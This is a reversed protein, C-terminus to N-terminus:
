IHTALFKLKEEEHVPPLGHGYEAYIRIDKESGLHNYLAFVSSPPCVSDELGVGLLTPCSVRSALNMCDFYSLTGYITEETEHLPDHVKFYHYIETYPGESSLQVSREFHTLYPIETLALLINRQLAAAALALAGGQSSGEVFVTSKGSLERVVDVSRFCDMYVNSYYYQDPNKIGLTMWGSSGGNEYLHHDPSAPNQGRVEVLLVPIGQMVYKFAYHPQLTNWNYGHFIVAGPTEQKVVLPTVYVGHIRSNRFGDFYIDYVKVDPVWYSREITKIHLPYQQNEMIRHDWFTDFDHKKTQKPLYNRLQDLPLDFLNM